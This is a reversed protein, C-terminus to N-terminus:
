FPKALCHKEIAAYFLSDFGLCCVLFGLSGLVKSSGVVFTGPLM